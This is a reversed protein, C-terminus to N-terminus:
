RPEQMNRCMTVLCGSVEAPKQQLALEQVVHQLLRAGDDVGKGDVLVVDHDGAAVIAGQPACNSNRKGKDKLSVPAEVGDTVSITLLCGRMSSVGRSAIVTARCRSAVSGASRSRRDKGVRHLTSTRLSAHIHQLAYSQFLPLRKWCYVDGICGPDSSDSDPMKASVKSLHAPLATSLQLKDHGSCQDDQATHAHV